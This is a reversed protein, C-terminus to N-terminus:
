VATEWKIPMGAAELQKALSIIFSDFEAPDTPVISYDLARSSRSDMIMEVPDASSTGYVTVGGTNHPLLMVLDGARGVFKSGDLDPEGTGTIVRNIGKNLLALRPTINADDLSQYSKRLVETVLETVEPGNEDLLLVIDYMRGLQAKSIGVARQKVPKDVKPTVQKVRKESVKQAKVAPTSTPATLLAPDVKPAVRKERQVPAAPINPQPTPTISPTTRIERKKLQKPM